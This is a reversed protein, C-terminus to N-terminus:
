YCIFLKCSRRLTSGYEHRLNSEFEYWYNRFVGCECTNVQSDPQHKQHESLSLLILSQSVYNCFNVKPASLLVQLIELLLLPPAPTAAVLSNTFAIL